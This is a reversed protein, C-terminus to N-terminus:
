LRLKEYNIKCLHCNDNNRTQTIIVKARVYIIVNTVNSVSTNM